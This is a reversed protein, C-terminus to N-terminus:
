IGTSSAACCCVTCSVHLHELFQKCVQLSVPLNRKPYHARYTFEIWRLCSEVAMELPGPTCRGPAYDPYQEPRQALGHMPDLVKVQRNEFDFYLVVQTLFTNYARALSLPDKLMGFPLDPCVGMYLVATTFCLMALSM